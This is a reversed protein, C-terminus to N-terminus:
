ITFVTHLYIYWVYGHLTHIGTEFPQNKHYISFVTYIYTYIYWDVWPNTWPNTWPHNKKCFYMPSRRAPRAMSGPETRPSLHHKTIYTVMEWSKTWRIGLSLVLWQIIMLNWTYSASVGVKCSYLVKYITPCVVTGEVPSQQIESGDVSHFKCKLMQQHITKWEVDAPGALLRRGSVM